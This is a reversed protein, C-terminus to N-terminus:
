QNGNTLRERAIRAAAPCPVMVGAYKSKLEEDYLLAVLTIFFFYWGLMVMLLFIADHCARNELYKEPHHRVLIAFLISSAAIGAPIWMAVLIWLFVVHPHAVM